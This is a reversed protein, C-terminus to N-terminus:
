ASAQAAPMMVRPLLEKIDEGTAMAGWGRADRLSNLEAEFHPRMARVKDSAQQQKDPPLSAFRASSTLSLERSSQAHQTQPLNPCPCPTEGGSVLIFSPSEGIRSACLKRPSEGPRSVPSCMPSEGSRSVCAYALCRPVLEPPGCSDNTFCMLHLLRM